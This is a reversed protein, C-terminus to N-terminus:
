AVAEIFGYDRLLENAENYGIHEVTLFYAEEVSLTGFRSGGLDNYYGCWTLEEIAEDIEDKTVDALRENLLKEGLYYVAKNTKLEFETMETDGRESTAHQEKVTEIVHYPCM